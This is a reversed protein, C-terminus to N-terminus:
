FYWFFGDASDRNDRIIMRNSIQFRPHILFLYLIM